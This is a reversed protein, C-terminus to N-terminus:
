GNQAKRERYRRSVEADCIRCRRGGRALYRTNEESFAHGYKCHTKIANPHRGRKLRDQMNDTHTGLYLHDPNVCSPVDCKHCVFFKGPHGYHLAWSLRNGTWGKNNITISPYGADTVCGQWLWCGNDDYHIQALWRKAREEDTLIM